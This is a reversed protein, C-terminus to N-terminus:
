TKAVKFVTFYFVPIVDLWYNSPITDVDHWLRRSFNIHEGALRQGDQRTAGSQWEFSGITFTTNSQGLDLMLPHLLLMEIAVSWM